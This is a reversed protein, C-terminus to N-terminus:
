WYCGDEVKEKHRPTEAAIPRVWHENFLKATTDAYEEEWRKGKIGFLLQTVGGMHIAQKGSRKAFSALPLGYAGAGILCVDYDIRSMEGCMHRYADFWSAFGVPSGAISQVAKLTKLEFDPLVAPDAFLLPRKEEYQRAISEAFPHVVLVKRGALAASWPNRFRFPELCGLEVLMADSCWSNCIVHEYHNFWVGMLDAQKVEELYLESFADLAADDAPFFGANNMMSFALDRPYHRKNRRRHRLYYRLCSLEVAGLRSIMSPRGTAILERIRDQGAQDFLIERHYLAGRCRIKDEYEVLNLQELKGQLIGLRLLAFKVFPIRAVLAPVTLVQNIGIKQRLALDM